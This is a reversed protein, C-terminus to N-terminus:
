PPLICGLTMVTRAASRRACNLKLFLNGLREELGMEPISLMRAIERNSRGEAVLSLIKVEAADKEVPRRDAYLAKIGEVLDRGKVDKLFYGRAGAHVARLIDAMGDLGSLVAIRAEPFKQVISAVVQLGSPGPLQLDILSVDPQREEFLRIAQLGNEAEAVTEMEPQHNIVAQLGLRVVFRDEAIMIKIREGAM